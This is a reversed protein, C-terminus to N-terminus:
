ALSCQLELLNREIYTTDSAEVFERQVPYYRFGLDRKNGFQAYNYLLKCEICRLTFKRCKVAGKTTYCKVLCSNYSALRRQCEYCNEVPPALIIMRNAAFNSITDSLENMVFSLLGKLDEQSLQPLDEQLVTIKQNETLTSPLVKISACLKAVVDFSYRSILWCLKEDSAFNGLKTTPPLSFFDAQSLVEFSDKVSSFLGRRRKAESELEDLSPLLQRKKTAM